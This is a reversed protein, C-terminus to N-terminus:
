LLITEATFGVNEVRVAIELRSFSYVSRAGDSNLVGSATPVRNQRAKSSDKIFTRCTKTM